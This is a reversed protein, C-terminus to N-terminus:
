KSYIQSIKKLLKSLLFIINTNSIDTLPDTSRCSLTGYNRQQLSENAGSKGM